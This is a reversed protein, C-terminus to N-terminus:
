DELRFKVKHETVVGDRVRLGTFSGDGEWTLLIDAEGQTLALARKFLDFSRGSGEGCWSPNKIVFPEPDRLSVDHLFTDEPLRDEHTDRFNIAKDRGITLEGSIYRVGDIDYSM